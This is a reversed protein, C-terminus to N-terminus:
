LYYILSLLSSITFHWLLHNSRPSYKGVHTIDDSSCVGQLCSLKSKRGGLLTKKKLTNKLKNKPSSTVAHILLLVSCVCYMICEAKARFHYVLRYVSKDHMDNKGQPMLFDFFFFFDRALNPSNKLM